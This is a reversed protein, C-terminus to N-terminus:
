KILKTMLIIKKFLEKQKVLAKQKELYIENEILKNNNAILRGEKDYGNATNKLLNAMEAQKKKDTLQKM